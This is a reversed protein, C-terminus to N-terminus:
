TEGGLVLVRRDPTMGPVASGKSYVVTLHMSLPTKVPVGQAFYWSAIESSNYVPRNVYLSNPLVIGSGGNKSVPAFVEPRLVIEGGWPVMDSRLGHGQAVTIHAKYDPYDSTAGRAKFEDHRRTLAPCSLTLVLSDGDGFIETGRPADEKVRVRM